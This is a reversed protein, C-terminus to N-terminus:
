RNLSLTIIPAYAVTYVSVGPRTAMHVTGAWPMSTESTVDTISFYAEMLARRVKTCLTQSEIMNEELSRDNSTAVLLRLDIREKSYYGDSSEDIPDINFVQGLVVPMQRARLELDALAEDNAAEGRYIDVDVDTTAVDPLRARLHELVLGLLASAYADNDEIQVEYQYPM